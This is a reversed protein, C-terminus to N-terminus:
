KIEKGIRNNLNALWDTPQDQEDGWEIDEPSSWTFKDDTSNM